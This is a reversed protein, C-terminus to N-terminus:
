RILINGSAITSKIPNLCFVLAKAIVNLKLEYQMASHAENMFNIYVLLKTKM